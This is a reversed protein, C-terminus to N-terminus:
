KGVLKFAHHTKGTRHSYVVWALSLAELWRASEIGGVDIVPWGFQGLLASQRGNDQRLDVGQLPPQRVSRASLSEVCLRNSMTSARLVNWCTGWNPFRERTYQV